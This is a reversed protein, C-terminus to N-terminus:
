PTRNSEKLWGAAALAKAGGHLVFVENGFDLKRIREAISKSTGCSESTCYVVVVPADVLRQAADAELKLADEKPDTNWLISDRIGDRTWEERSRADVWLVKGQWRSIVTEFCIEGAPLAAPNCAVAMRKPAGRIWWTTAAAAAALGVILLAQLLARM